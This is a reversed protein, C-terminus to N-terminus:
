DPSFKRKGEDLVVRFWKLRHLTRATQYDKVLTSYTTLVLDSSAFAQPENGRDKGHFTVM